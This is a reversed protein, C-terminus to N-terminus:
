RASCPTPDWGAADAQKKFHTSRQFHRALYMPDDVLTTVILLVDGNPEM